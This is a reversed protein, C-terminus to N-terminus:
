RKRKKMQSADLSEEIREYSGEMTGGGSCFYMLSVDDTPDSPALHVMDGEVTVVLRTKTHLGCTMSGDTHRTLECDFTCTPRKYPNDNRSRVQLRATTDTVDYIVVGVWDFGKFRNEYADSVYTGAIADQAHTAPFGGMVAALLFFSLIRNM